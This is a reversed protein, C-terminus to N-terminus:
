GLHKLHVVVAQKRLQSLFSMEAGTVSWFPKDECDYFISLWKKEKQSLHSAISYAM